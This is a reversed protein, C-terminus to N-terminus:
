DDGTAEGGLVSPAYTYHIAVPLAVRPLLAGAIVSALAASQKM